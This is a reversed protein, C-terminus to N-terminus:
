DNVSWFTWVLINKANNNSYAVYILIGFCIVIYWIVTLRKASPSPPHILPHTFSHTLTHTPSHIPLYTSPHTVPHTLPYTHQIPSQIPSHNPPHTSPYSLPHTYPHTSLHILSSINSGWQASHPCNLKIQINKPKLNHQLENTLEHPVKWTLENTLGQTRILRQTQSNM